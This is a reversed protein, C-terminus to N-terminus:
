EGIAMLSANGGSATTNICKTRETVLRLLYHPGGAKPGTGSLGEGGFPQVGVVAGIMNRNVYINGAKVRSSLFHITEDVRSHIGFTLGYGTNNISEVVSDMQSGKFRVVHLFPGFNEEALINIDKIEFVCPAFYTGQNCEESREMQYLLKGKQCMEDFHAQLKDRSPADIVPGIDTAFYQPTGIKLEKMAGILMTVVNEYIEDQIYLVRLASCRQGASRFASQIVDMVVQEPLASSDVLMVNQGGTEAIFPIIPGKRAALTQNISRGTETSGTFMVGKIREDEILAQGVSSGRGPLLQVSKESFGAKHLIEVAVHAILPTQAAPKAIVTNGSALAATVQGMFIALPFNWPSICAIVGRPYLFLQNSEGTPGVLTQPNLLKEAAIHRYYYCFDIAERVEAVADELTKGGEMMLLGILENRAQSLLEAAKDLADLRRSLPKTEEELFAQHAAHIAAEIVEKNAQIVSGLQLNSYIPGFVPKTECSAIVKKDLFKLATPKATINREVVKTCFGLIPLFEKPNSLDVGLSNPRANGYIDKPLPIRAHPKLEVEKLKQIPSAILADVPLSQNVIRNVFSSNAGNELLRRVLYALLSEHTGVPAYVRCPIANEGQVIQDYLADGMGHLCQFEYRTANMSKALEMVVALTHANHTAFQSYIVDQASLLKKVCAIYSVDTAIKRTFVPYGSLGQVQSHKIESDWYAGKVLRIMLHRHNSRATSILWELVDIARKQYAQVALGFGQWGSFRPDELISKIVELSLKLRVAEEADITFNINAEKAMLALQKVKPILEQIVRTRQSIEYRPHLASLKVSIGPSLIPSNRNANQTIALIAQQYAEFYKKADNETYAAEGLMDYSFRYGQQEKVKARNLAEDITRGMVFQRGLIRMAQLVGQRVIPEGGKNALKKLAETLYNVQEETSPQTNLVKGTLMLAMTAANVFMSHSKGIHQHWNSSTLKDRILKDITENDPIRLLAEAMCMLAIGEQSSLDYQLMFADIGSESLRRKRVELVLEKAKNQVKQSIDEPLSAEIMLEKLVEQEDRRYNRDIKQFLPDALDTYEQNLERNWEHSAHYSGFKEM